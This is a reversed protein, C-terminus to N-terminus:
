PCEEETEPWTALVPCAGEGESFHRELTAESLFRGCFQCRLKQGCHVCAGGGRWTHDNYYCDATLTSM